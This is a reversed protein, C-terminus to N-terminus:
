INILFTFSKLKCVDKGKKVVNRIIIVTRSMFCIKTQEDILKIFIYTALSSNLSLGFPRM